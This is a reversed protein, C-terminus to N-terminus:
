EIGKPLHAQLSPNIFTLPVSKKSIFSGYQISFWESTFLKRVAM